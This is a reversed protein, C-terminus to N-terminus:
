RTQAPPASAVGFYQDIELMPTITVKYDGCLWIHGDGKRVAVIPAAWPSYTIKEVIGDQELHNLEQEIVEKLVFLVTRAKGFKPVANDKMQLTAEFSNIEGPKGIKVLGTM